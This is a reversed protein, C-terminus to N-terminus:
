KIKGGDNGVGELREIYKQVGIRQHKLDYYKKKCYDSCFRTDLRYWKNIKSGCCNCYFPNM